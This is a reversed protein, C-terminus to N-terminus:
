LEATVDSHDARIDCHEVTNECHDVIRGFATYCQETTSDYHYVRMDCHAIIDLCSFKKIVNCHEVTVDCHEM